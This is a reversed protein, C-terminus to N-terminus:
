MVVRRLNAYLILCIAPKMDIHYISFAITFFAVTTILALAIAIKDRRSLKILTIASYRFALKDSQNQFQQIVSVSSCRDKVEGVTDADTHGPSGKPKM